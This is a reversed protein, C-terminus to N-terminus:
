VLVAPIVFIVANSLLVLVLIYFVLIWLVVLHVSFCHLIFFSVFSLVSISSVDLLLTLVDFVALATNALSPASQLLIALIWCGADLIKKPWRKENKRWFCRPFRCLKEVKISYRIRCYFFNWNLLCFIANSVVKFNLYFIHLYPLVTGSQLHFWFLSM